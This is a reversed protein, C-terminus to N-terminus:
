AHTWLFGVAFGAAVFKNHDALNCLVFKTREVVGSGPERSEENDNDNQRGDKPTRTLNLEFLGLEHVLRFLALSGGVVLPASRDRYCLEGAVLGCVGGLVLQGVPTDVTDKEYSKLFNSESM